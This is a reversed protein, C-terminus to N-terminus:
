KAGKKSNSKSGGGKVPSNTGGTKQNKDFPKGKLKGTPGATPKRTDKGMTIDTYGM